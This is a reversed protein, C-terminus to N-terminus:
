GADPHSIIAFNRRREIEIDPARFSESNSAIVSEGDNSLIDQYAVNEELAIENNLSVCQKNLNIREFLNGLPPTTTLIQQRKIM